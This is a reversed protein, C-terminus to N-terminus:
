PPCRPDLKTHSLSAFPPVHATSAEGRGGRGALTPVAARYMISAWPECPGAEVLLV